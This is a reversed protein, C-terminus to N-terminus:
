RSGLATTIILYAIDAAATPRAFTALNDSLSQQLTTNKVVGEITRALVGRDAELATENVVIAAQAVALMQANKTQHGGALLPNPIIICPKKMIALEALTTAGARTIVMTAAAFITPLDHSYPQLVLRKGYKTGLQRQLTAYGKEGTLWYVASDRPTLIAELDAAVADNVRLAGLSGGVIAIVVAQEDFGLAKKARDHVPPTLFEARVPVGTFHVNKNKYQPYQDIPAGVALAAAYRSLIRNTLGPLVDSDHTVIPIRLMAAALGVPLGVYGGKVFVVDPRWALLILISKMFGLGFLFTDKINHFILGPQSLYWYWQKGHYRRLKGAFITHNKEIVLHEQVTKAM